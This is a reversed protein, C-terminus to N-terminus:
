TATASSSRTRARARRLRIPYTNKGVVPKLSRSCRTLGPPGYITLPAERGRLSFSKIMGPLGLFHDVHFHTIFVEELDILGISRLLQRQTGEGCDFLLRDGGRRILTAPLAAARADAGLRRHRPLRRRPGSPTLRDVCSSRRREGDTATAIGMTHRPQRRRDTPSGPNFIQFGDDSTAEHLPIHSHGFVVADADPFRKRM